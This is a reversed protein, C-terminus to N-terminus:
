MPRIKHHLKALNSSFKATLYMPTAPKYVKPGFNEFRFFWVFAVEDECEGM